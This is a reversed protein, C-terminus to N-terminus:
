GGQAQLTSSTFRIRTTWALRVTAVASLSPAPVIMAVPTLRSIPGDLLYRGRDCARPWLRGRDCARPWLRTQCIHLVCM